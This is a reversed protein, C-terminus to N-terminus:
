DLLAAAAQVMGVMPEKGAPYNYDQGGNDIRLVALRTGDLVMGFAEFRGTEEGAPAWSLLYWRAQGASTTVPKLARVKLGPNDARKAGCADHWSKLVSWARAATATDPFEAVQEAANDDSDDPPFYSREVTASAGISALDTKACLGFPAPGAPGTEGDAWQWQANLGPVEATPVLRETLPVDSPPASSEPTAPTTPAAATSSPPASPSEGAPAPTPEDDKAACGVVLALGLVAAVSAPLARMRERYPLFTVGVIV